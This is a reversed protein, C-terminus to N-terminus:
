KRPPIMNQMGIGDPGGMMMMMMDADISPMQPRRTSFRRNIGQGRLKSVFIKEAEAENVKSFQAKLESPWNRSKVALHEIRAGNSTYLVDSYGRQQLVGSGVWAITEVLDVLVAGTGFDVMVPEVQEEEDNRRGMGFEHYDENKIKKAVTGGIVEGPRVHFKESLWRGLYYKSVQIKVSKDELEADLPFFHMMEPIEITETVDSYSSWLIVEDKLNKKDDLFWDYGAM